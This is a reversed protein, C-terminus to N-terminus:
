YGPHECAVPDPVGSLWTPPFLCTDTALDPTTLSDGGDVEAASLGTLWDQGSEGFLHDAGVLSLIFDDGTGGFVHDIGVGGNLADADPGGYLRDQGAGGYLADKGDSGLSRFLSTYPFLPDTRTSRTPRLIM